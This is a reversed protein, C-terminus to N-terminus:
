ALVKPRHSQGDRRRIKDRTAEQHERRAELVNETRGKNVLVQEGKTLTQEVMVLVINERIM